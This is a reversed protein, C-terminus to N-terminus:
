IAFRWTGFQLAVVTLISVVGRHMGSGNASSGKAPHAGSGTVVKAGEVVIAGVRGVV